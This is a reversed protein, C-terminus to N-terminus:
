RQAEPNLRRLYDAVWLDCTVRRTRRGASVVISKIDGDKMKRWATKRDLWGVRNAVEGPGLKEANQPLIQDVADV